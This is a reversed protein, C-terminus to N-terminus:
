LQALANCVRDVEESGLFAHMPLSLVEGALTEAIARASAKLVRDATQEAVGHSFWAGGAGLAAAVITLSSILVLLLRQTLSRRRDFLKM